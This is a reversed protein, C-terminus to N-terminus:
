YFKRGAARFKRVDEATPFTYYSACNSNNELCATEACLIKEIAEVLADMGLKKTGEILEELTTEATIPLRKQVLIPGSDIGEDVYFVSVGTETEGNKLVWFSPMLGRYAPLLASHLNLCGLPALDLLPRKFLENAAISILLDPRYRRILERSHHHNISRSLRLVPVCHRAMVTAVQHRRNLKALAYRLAYRAFFSPGFIRWTRQAKALFSERKGFPSVALLVCAVVSSEAPLRCLLDELNRGLYFPDDQTILVIRLPGNPLDREGRCINAVSTAISRSVM